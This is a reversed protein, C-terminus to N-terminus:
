KQYKQYQGNKAQRQITRLERYVGRKICKCETNYQEFAKVREFCRDWIEMDFKWGTGLRTYRFCCGPGKPLVFDSMNFHRFANQKPSIGRVRCALVPVPYQWVEITNIAGQLM